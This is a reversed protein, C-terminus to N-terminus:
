FSSDAASFGALADRAVHGPADPAFSARLAPAHQREFLFLLLISFEAFIMTKTALGIASSIVILFYVFILTVGKHGRRWFEWFLAFLGCSFFAAMWGGYKFLLALWNNEIGIEIGFSNLLSGVLDPRPGLLLESLDFKEFLQWVIVRAEGSGNDDLFRAVFADLVGSLAAAAIAGIVAPALLAAALFHRIDIRAGLLIAAFKRLVVLAIVLTSAVIATRGGFAIMALATTLVAAVRWAPRLDRDGGMFLCLVYTGTTCANLLPHGFLATSRYDGDIEMGSIVYPFLRWGTLYELIGMVANGCLTVHLFLRLGRRYSPPFDDYLFLAVLPLTYPELMETFHAQQNLVGHAMLFLWMAIFYFAGPFAAALAAMRQLPRPRLATAVVFAMAAVISAPHLKQWGPGDTLDYTFGVFSLAMTSVYFLLVLALAFLFMAPKPAADRGPSPRADSM